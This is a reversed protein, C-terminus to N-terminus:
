LDPSYSQPVDTMTFMSIKPIGIHAMEEDFRDGVHAVSGEMSAVELDIENHFARFAESAAGPRAKSVKLPAHPDADVDAAVPHSDFSAFAGWNIEVGDIVSLLDGIEEEHTRPAAPREPSAKPSESESVGAKDVKAHLAKEGRKADGAPVHLTEKRGVANKADAANKADVADKADATASHPSAEEAKSEKQKRRSRKKAIRRRTMEESRRAGERLLRTYACHCNKCVKAMDYMRARERQPLRALWNETLPEHVAAGGPNEKSRHKVMAAYKGVIIAKYPIEYLADSTNGTYALEEEETPHYHCMYGVCEENPQEMSAGDTGAAIRPPLAGIGYKRIKDAIDAAGIRFLPNQTMVHEREGHAEGGLSISASSKKRTRLSAYSKTADSRDDAMDLDEQKFSVAKIQLVWWREEADVVCDAVLMTPKPAISAALSSAIRKPGRWSRKATSKVYDGNNIIWVCPCDGSPNDDKGPGEPSSPATGWHYNLPPLSSHNVSVRRATSHRQWEARAVWGTQLGSGGARQQRGKGADRRCPIYEQIAIARYGRLSEFPPHRAAVAEFPSVLKSSVDCQPQMNSLLRPTAGAALESLLEVVQETQDITAIDNAAAEVRSGKLVAIPHSVGDTANIRRHAAHSRILAAVQGLERQPVSGVQWRQIRVRSSNNGSGGHHLFTCTRNALDLVFTVPISVGDPLETASGFYSMNPLYEPASYRVRRYSSADGLIPRLRRRDRKKKGKSKRTRGELGAGTSSLLPQGFRPKSPHVMETAELKKRTESYNLADLRRGLAKAKRREVKRIRRKSKKDLIGDLWVDYSSQLEQLKESSAVSRLPSAVPRLPKREAVSTAM